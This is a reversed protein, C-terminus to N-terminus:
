DRRRRTLLASLCAALALSTPEPVVEVVGQIAPNSLILAPADNWRRPPLFPNGPEVLYAWDEDGGAAGGNNPEGGAFFTFTNPEGSIWQFNGETLIDNFGTGLPRNVGGLTAFTDAIFTNEALDNVTALHGGLAVAQAESGLFTDPTLLYYAHGNAPNTIPGSFVAASACPSLLATVLTASAITFSSLAPRAAGSIIKGM